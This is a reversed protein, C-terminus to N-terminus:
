RMHEGNKGGFNREQMRHSNSSDGSTDESMDGGYGRVHRWRLRQCTAVTVESM